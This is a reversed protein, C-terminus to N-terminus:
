ELRVKWYGPERKLHMVAVIWLRDADELYIIGYPFSLSFHRRAPPDVQRFTQPHACVERILQEMELLFRQGLQSDIAAYYAVAATLESDAAPHFVAKM